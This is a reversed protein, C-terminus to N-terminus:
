DWDNGFKDERYQLQEPTIYNMEKFEKFSSLLFVTPPFSANCCKNKKINVGLLYIKEGDRNTALYTMGSKFNNKKKNKCCKKFILGSGCNCIDNSHQIRSVRNLEDLEIKKLRSQCRLKNNKIQQATLKKLHERFENM